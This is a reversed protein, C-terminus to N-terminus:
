MSHASIGVYYLVHTRECIHLSSVQMCSLDLLAITIAGNTVRPIHIAQTLANMGYGDVVPMSVLYLINMPVEHQSQSSDHHPLCALVALGCCYYCM